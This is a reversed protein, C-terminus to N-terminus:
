FMNHPRYSLAELIHEPHVYESQSLDAITRAIKLTRHYSRASLGLAQASKTLIETAQPTCQIMSNIERATIDANTKPNCNTNVCRAYAYERAKQVQSLFLSSEEKKKHTSLREYSIEGVSLTIDIRDLIPGSLKKKYRVLDNATCSCQKIKSNRYGCPCPNMAMVCLFQAPFTINGQARTITVIKEELPQRLSEIVRRDFEPFEDLFLIGHHALTIEGPNPKSGGGIVSVYSASHHPTRLPRQTFSTTSISAGSLSHLVAVTIAEEESLPPLINILARALLTKGTGPPGHLLTTHGGAAAIVLGRKVSEQGVIDGFDTYDLTSSNQVKSQTLPTITLNKTHHHIIEQLSEIPYIHMHPILSAEEANEKPVCIKTHGAKKCALIMPLIASVPRLTGDLGLEGIHVYQDVDKELVGEAILYAIAIALDFHAGEKKISAPSLSVITKQNKNKPSQYGCNKLASSVRDRAEDVARDGLGVISFQNLGKSIDVEVSIISGQTTDRHACYLRSYSM